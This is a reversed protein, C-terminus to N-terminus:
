LEEKDEASGDEDLGDAELVDESPGSDAEGEDDDDDMDMEEEVEDGGEDDDDGDGGDEDGFMSKLYEEEEAAMKQRRERDRQAVEDSTEDSAAAGGGERGGRGGRGGGGGGRASSSKGGATKATSSGARKSRRDSKAGGSSADSGSAGGSSSGNGKGGKGAQKRWRMAPAKKLSTMELTDSTLSSVFARLEPLAFEGRHAKAHLSIPAAKGKGKKGKSGKPPPASEAEAPTSRFAVLQAAKPDTPQPLHKALSFEYRALNITGFTVARHEHMLKQLTRSAEGGLEKPALVLVCHRKKFCHTHLQESKTFTLARKESRAKVLNVLAAAQQRPTPFLADSLGGYKALMEPQLQVPAQGNASLLLTPLLKADLRFRDITSKGSPLRKTCDLLGVRAVSAGLKPLALEVVEHVALKPDSAAAALDAAAGCQVLWPDGSFFVTKLQTANSISLLEVAPPKKVAAQKNFALSLGWLLAAAMSQLLCALAEHM